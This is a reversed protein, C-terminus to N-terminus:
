RENSIRSRILRSPNGGVISYEPFDKCLLCCAGIITGKKINRGPTMTVERGIWVDDEIVTQQDPYYGQSQITVDTRDFRHNRSLIFVKPGMNVNNGIITDSPISCKVGIGSRDGIEIDFGCGFVAGREINVNKGCKRFIIRGCLYRLKKSVPGLVPFYSCPLYRFLGYYFVLAILKHLNAFRLRGKRM